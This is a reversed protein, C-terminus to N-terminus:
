HVAPAQQARVEDGTLPPVIREGPGTGLLPGTRGTIAALAAADFGPQGAGRELAVVGLMGTERQRAALDYPGRRAAVRARCRRQSSVLIAGTAGERRQDVDEIRVAHHQAAAHRVSRFLTTYPFLTSRPPRRIM